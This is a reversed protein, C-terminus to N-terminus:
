ISVPALIDRIARVLDEAKFPKFLCPRSSSRIFSKTNENATDGTMFLIKELLLSQEKELIRYLDIGSLGPMKIDLLILDYDDKKLKNRAELGNCATDLQVSMSFLLESIYERILDEDEVLLIKKGRLEDTKGHRSAVEPSAKAKERPSFIPLEITFTVGERSNEVAIRGKHEKIIGYCISLGLGTGRGIEKTTFFPLFIKKLNEEPIAPGNNSIAVKAWGEKESTRILITKDGKNSALAHEANNLINLLVQHIQNSDALIEGLDSHIERRVKIKSSRFPYTKLELVKEILSNINLPRKDAKSERAFTLLNQVIKSARQAEGAIKEIKKRYSDDRSQAYLLDSYGLISTLPSNLEHAVGSVLMGVASLKESQILHQQALKLNEYLTANSLAIDIFKGLNKLKETDLNDFSRREMGSIVCLMAKKEKLSSLPLAMYEISEEASLDPFLKKATTQGRYIGNESLIYQPPSFRKPAEEVHEWGYTTYINMYPENNEEFALIAASAHVSDSAIRVIAQSLKKMDLEAGIELALDNLSALESQRITLATEKKSLTILSLFLIGIPVTALIALPPYLTWLAAMSLGLTIVASENYLATKNLFGTKFFPKRTALAIVINTLLHNILSFIILALLAYLIVGSTLRSLDEDTGIRFWLTSAIALSFLLQGINFLATLLKRKHFLYDYLPLLALIAAVGGPHILFFLAYVFSASIQIVGKSPLHGQFSISLSTALLALSGFFFFPWPDWERESPFIFLFIASFIGLLIILVVYFVTPINYRKKGIM